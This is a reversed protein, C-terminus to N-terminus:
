RGLRLDVQHERHLDGFMGGLEDGLAARLPAAQPEIVTVANGYGRAAAAVELGIWGAGIVVVRQEGGALAAKLEDSNRKTRLDHVGVPDAGLVKLQRPASGTALLLKEYGIASGGALAVNRAARDISLARVGRRLDVQHDAYWSDDHVIISDDPDSGALVGKSLPPREYPLVDEAAVLVVSGDFGEDRLA